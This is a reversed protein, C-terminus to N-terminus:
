PAIGVRMNVAHLTTHRSWHRLWRRLPPASVNRRASTDQTAVNNDHPWRQGVSDRALNMGEGELPPVIDPSTGHGGLEIRAINM